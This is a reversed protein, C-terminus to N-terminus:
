FDFNFDDLLGGSLINPTFQDSLIDEKKIIDLKEKQSILTSTLKNLLDKNYFHKKILFEEMELRTTNEIYRMDFGSKYLYSMNLFNNFDHFSKLDNQQTLESHSYFLYKKKLFINVFLLLSIFFM